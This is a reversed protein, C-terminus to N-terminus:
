EENEYILKAHEYCINMVVNTLIMFDQEIKTTDNDFEKLFFKYISCKCVHSCAIYKSKELFENKQIKPHFIEKYFKDITDLMLTYKEKKIKADPLEDYEYHSGTEYTIRSINYCEVDLENQEKIEKKQYESHKKTDGKLKALHCLTMTNCLKKCLIETYKHHCELDSIVNTPYIRCIITETMTLFYICFLKIKLHKFEFNNHNSYSVIKM